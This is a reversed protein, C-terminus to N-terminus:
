ASALISQWVKLAQTVQETTVDHHTVMRWRNGLVMALVGEEELRQLWNAYEGERSPASFYVINTHVSSLDLEVGPLAALGQALKLANDHDEQLREIMRTVGIIGCAALIGSQRMGGGLQKRLYRAREIDARSGVLVSGVPACLGKSLCVSITDFPQCLEPLSIGTAVHANWLRAGDLHFRIDHRRAVEALAQVNAQPIVTGGAANHTNEVVICATRPNHINEPRVLAEVRAPDMVGLHGHVPRVQARALMALAGSENNYTHAGFECIVEQGDRAHLAIAIQNGMTGSPVFLGAQKGLLDATINELETVTPETGLVDDGLKATAMAEYMEPTPLTVTDSRFDAVM